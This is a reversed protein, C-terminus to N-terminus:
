TFAAGRVRKMAFLQEDAECSHIMRPKPNLKRGTNRKWLGAHSQVFEQSGLVAGETFYRIRCRLRVASPLVGQQELVRGAAKRDITAGHVMAASGKGFLMESYAALSQASSAEYEGFTLFKLARQSKKQGSVAEAYGCFRYEKPDEVLGARVPNLDIYAAMTQLANGKGEVLVSKFRDAWLPGFREHAKNFWTSFRQKLTKMFASVDNMRALLKQRILDTDPGGQKLERELVSISATQYLTPKEYLLRYRRMLERDSVEADPTVRVLVHFHNNMLCYTLVEVGSFDAIQHIMKRMIEMERVKFLPEGNVTRSMCHYIDTGEATIRKTRM